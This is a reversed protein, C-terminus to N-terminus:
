GSYDQKQSPVDNDNPDKNSLARTFDTEANPIQFFFGGCIFVNSKITLIAWPLRAALSWEFIIDAHKQSKKAWEGM